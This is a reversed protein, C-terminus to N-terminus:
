AVNYKSVKAQTITYRHLAVTKYKLEYKKIM